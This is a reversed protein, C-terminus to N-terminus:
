QRAIRIMFITGAIKHFAVKKYSDVIGNCIYVTVLHHM